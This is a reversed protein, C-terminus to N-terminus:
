KEISKTTCESKWETEVIGVSVSLIKKLKIKGKKVVNSREIRSKKLCYHGFKKIKIM